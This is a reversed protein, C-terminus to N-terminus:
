DNTIGLTEPNHDLRNGKDDSYFTADADTITVSLDSHLLDYDTFEYNDTYVRFVYVGAGTYIVQGEVGEAKLKM